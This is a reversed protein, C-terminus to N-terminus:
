NTPRVRCIHFVQTVRNARRPQQAEEVLDTKVRDAGLFQQLNALRKRVAAIRQADFVALEAQAVIVREQIGDRRSGGRELLRLLGREFGLALTPRPRRRDNRRAPRFDVRGRASAVRHRFAATRHTDGTVALTHFMATSAPCRTLGPLLQDHQFGHLHLDRHGRRAAPTTSLSFQAGPASTDAPWRSTVSRPRILCSASICSSRPDNRSATCTRRAGRGGIHDRRDVVSRLPGSSGTHIERADRAFLRESARAFQFAIGSAATRGSYPTGNAMLSLM